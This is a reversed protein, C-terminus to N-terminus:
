IWEGTSTSNSSNSTPATPSLHLVTLYGVKSEHNDLICQFSAGDLTRPSNHITLSNDRLDFSFVEIIAFDSWYYELGNIVWTAIDESIVAMTCNLKTSEGETVTVNGPEM